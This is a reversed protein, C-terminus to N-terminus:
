EFLSKMTSWTMQETGVVDGGVTVSGIYWGPYTVSSDSGFQFELQVEEGFFVRSASLRRQYEIRVLCYREWLRTMGGILLLLLSILLLSMQHLLLSATFLAAAIFLWYSHRM